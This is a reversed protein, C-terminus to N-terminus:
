EDGLGLLNGIAQVAQRKLEDLANTRLATGLVSRLIEKGLADATVGEAGGLDNLTFDILDREAGRGGTATTGLRIKGGDVTLTKVIIRRPDEGQRNKGTIPAYREVNDLLTRLNVRNKESVELLLDLGSIRIEEVVTVDRTLSATEIDLTLTEVSVAVADSFGPPNGIRIGTLTGRGEAVQLKVDDVSTEAGTIQRGYHAVKGKMLDDVGGALWFILVIAAIGAAVFSIVVTRGKM